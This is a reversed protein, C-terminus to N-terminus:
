NSLFGILKVHCPGAAAMSGAPAARRHPLFFPLGWKLLQGSYDNMSDPSKHPLLPDTTSFVAHTVLAAPYQLTQAESKYLICSGDVM